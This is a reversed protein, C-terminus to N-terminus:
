FFLPAPVEMPGADEPIHEAVCFAHVLAMFPDTKRGHPEVKGYTWNDHPAPVLNANNTAWRMLPSDGWAISRTAFASDIVPQVRMVDSPRTLWVCKDDGKLSSDFGADALADRMLTIRYDDVSVMRVDHTAAMESVWHGVLAPPIEVDDVCTLEGAAEWERLPAEVEGADRSRLCWWAHHLMQWEGDVRFLAVAGVM